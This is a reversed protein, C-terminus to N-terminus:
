SQKKPLYVRFCAGGLNSKQINLKGQHSQICARVSLLGLGTGTSKTTYFPEFIKSKEPEPIGPGNDHVEIIASDNNEELEIRVKTDKGSTQTANLILNFMMQHLLDDQGEVVLQRNTVVQIEANTIESHIEAYAVAQKILDNLNIKNFQRRVSESGVSMLREVLQTLYHNTQRLTQLYKKQEDSLDSSQDMKYVCSNSVTLINNIDHGISSALMGSLARRESRQLERQQRELRMHSENISELLYKLLFFLLVSTVVVFLTGKILEIYRLDGIDGALKEALLGSIWIYVVAALGYIGAYVISTKEPHVIKKPHEIINFYKRIFSM